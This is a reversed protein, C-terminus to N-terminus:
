QGGNKRISKISFFRVIGIIFNIIGAFYGLTVWLFLLVIVVVINHHFLGAAGNIGMTACMFKWGWMLAAIALVQPLFIGIIIMPITIMFMRKLYSEQEDITYGYLKEIM